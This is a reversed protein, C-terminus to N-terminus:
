QVCLILAQEPTFGEKIHADYSTKRYSALMATKKLMLPMERKLMEYEAKRTKEDKPENMTIVEAM